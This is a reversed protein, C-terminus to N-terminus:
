EDDDEFTYTKSVGMGHDKEAQEIEEGRIVKGTVDIPADDGVLLRVVEGTGFQQIFVQIQQGADATHPDRTEPRGGAMELIDRASSRIVSPPPKAGGRGVKQGKAYKSLTKIAAPVHEQARQQISLDHLDEAAILSSEALKEQDNM